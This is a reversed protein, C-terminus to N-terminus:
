SLAGILDRIGQDINSLRLVLVKSGGAVLVKADGSAQSDILQRYGFDRGPIVLDDNDGSVIQLFM